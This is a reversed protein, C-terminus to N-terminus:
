FKIWAETQCISSTKFSATLCDTVICFDNIVFQWNFDM